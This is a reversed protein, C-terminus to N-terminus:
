YHIKPWSKGTNGTGMPITRIRKVGYRHEKGPCGVGSTPVM